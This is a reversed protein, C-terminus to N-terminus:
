ISQSFMHVHGAGLLTAIMTLAPCAGNQDITPSHVAAKCQRKSGFACLDGGDLPKGLGRIRLRDLIQARNLSRKKHMVSILATIASGALDYRRGRCDGLLLLAFQRDDTPVHPLVVM